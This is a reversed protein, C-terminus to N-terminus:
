SAFVALTPVYAAVSEVEGTTRASMAADGHRTARRTHEAYVATGVRAVVTTSIIVRGDRLHVSSGLQSGLWAEDAGRVTVEVISWEYHEGTHGLFTGNACTAAQRRWALIARAARRRDVYVGLSESRSM